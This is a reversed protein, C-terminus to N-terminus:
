DARSERVPSEGEEAPKGLVTRNAESFRLHLESLSVLGEIHLRYPHDHLQDM